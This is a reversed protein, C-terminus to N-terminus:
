PLEEDLVRHILAALEAKRFPKSILEIGLQELNDQFKSPSTYGSTLVIKLNPDLVRLERALTIGTHTGPM